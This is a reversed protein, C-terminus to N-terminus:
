LFWILSALSVSACVCVLHATAVSSWFLASCFEWWVLTCCWSMALSYMSSCCFHQSLWFVNSDSLQARPFILPSSSFNSPTVAKAVSQWSDSHAGLSHELLQPPPTIFFTRSTMTCGTPEPASHPGNTSSIGQLSSGHGTSQTVSSQPPHDDQELAHPPPTFSRVRRILVSGDFPPWGQGSVWSSTPQAICDQSWSQTSLSQLSQDCPQEFAQLPPVIRLALSM